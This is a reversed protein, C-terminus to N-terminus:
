HPKFDTAEANDICNEAQIRLSCRGLTTKYISDESLSLQLPPFYRSSLFGNQYEEYVNAVSLSVPM